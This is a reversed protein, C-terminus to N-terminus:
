FSRRSSLPLARRLIWKEILEPEQDKWPSTMKYGPWIENMVYQVVDKDLFPVRCEVGPLLNIRRYVITHTYLIWKEFVNRACKMPRHAGNYKYGAFLEDAGEGSLVMKIGHKKIYKSLIWMPTSARITTVDYTEVARIVNKLVDVGEKVTYIYEHHVTGLAAVRRAVAM